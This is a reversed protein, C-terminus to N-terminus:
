WVIDYSFVSGEPTPSLAMLLQARGDSSRLVPPADYTGLEIYYSHDGIVFTGERSPAIRDSDAVLLWIVEATPGRITITRRLLRGDGQVLRDSIQVGNLRYEFTPYDDPDSDYAILELSGSVSNPWVAATSSLRAFSPMGALALVSGAPDAVQSEGRDHWMATVDVFPGKWDFLLAAEDLDVSYHVGSSTGVSAAHTRKRSGLELFSRFVLSRAEPEVTLPEPPGDTTGMSRPTLEHWPVADGSAFLRLRAPRWRLNTKLYEFTFRHPGAALVTSGSGAQVRGREDPGHVGDHNVVLRDDVYLRGGGILETRFTYRGRLPVVMTGRFRLGYADVADALAHTIADTTESRVLHEANLDGRGSVGEYYEYSLGDVTLRDPVLRKFRINRYAVAEHDGQLMLPGTAREDQFAAARTPGTIPVNQHVLVGNHWVEEFRANVIKNGAADFRPASFVIRFRQWLGPARSVNVAPPHGEFGENGEGRSEDWREYIGGCDSSTAESVGWSDLVQVEYRGMLYVGSNAGRPTMFELELELDAHEWETLLNPGHGSTVLIGTGPETRLDHEVLRDSEVSGAISWGEPLRAFGVEDHLSVLTLDESPQLQARADALPLLLGAALALPAFRIM